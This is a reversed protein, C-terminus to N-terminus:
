IDIYKKLGERVDDVSRALIYVGGMSEIMQQFLKQSPRQKGKDNKVEIELRRGGKIIGSIDGGGLVGFSIFRCGSSLKGTNQRWIKLDHRSGFELLIEQQIEHESKM